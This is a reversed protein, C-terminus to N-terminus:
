LYKYKTTDVCIVDCVSVLKSKLKLRAYMMQKRTKNTNQMGNFAVHLPTIM